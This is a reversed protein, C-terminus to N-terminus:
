IYVYMPSYVYPQGGSRHEIRLQDTQPIPLGQILAQSNLGNAASHADAGAMLHVLSFPQRISQQLAITRTGSSFRLAAEGTPMSVAQPSDFVFGHGNHVSLQQYTRQSRNCITYHWHTHRTGMQIVFTPAQERQLDTAAISVQGIVGSLSLSRQALQRNLPQISPTQPDPSVDQRHYNLQGAWDLPLDSINAYYPDTNHLYFCLDRGELLDTLAAMFGAFAGTGDYYLGVSQETQLLLLRYRQMFVETRSEPKISLHHWIGDDYYQHRPQVYMLAQVM